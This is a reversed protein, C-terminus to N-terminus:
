PLPFEKPYVALEPYLASQYQGRSDEAKMMIVSGDKYQLNIFMQNIYDDKGDRTWPTLYNITIIQNDRYLINVIQGKESAIQDLVKSFGEAKKLQDSTIEIGGYEHFGDEWYFWYPKWTHGTGDTSADYTDHIATFSQDPLQMFSTFDGSTPDEYVQGNKVGYILSRNESGSRKEVLLLYNGGVSIKDLYSYTSDERIQETMEESVFWISGHYTDKDQDDRTGIIGFGEFREDQDYDLCIFQVIEGGATATLKDQLAKKQQKTPEAPLKSASDTTPTQASTIGVPASSAPDIVTVEPRCAILLLSVLLYIGSIM